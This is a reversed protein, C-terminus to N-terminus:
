ACRSDIITATAGLAASNPQLTNALRALEEFTFLQQFVVGYDPAKRWRVIGTLDPLGRAQIKLTQGRAFLHDSEIRAGERSLNCITVGISQSGASVTAPFRMRLRLPRKKYAGKENIFREVDISDVFRFGAHDEREWVFDIPFCEGTALELTMQRQTPLPHFMRLRVGSASVDRVICLYEGTDCILKASRILLAFRPTARLDDYNIEQGKDPASNEM